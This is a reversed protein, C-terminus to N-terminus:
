CFYQNQPPQTPQAKSLKNKRDTKTFKNLIAKLMVYIVLRFIFGSNVETAGGLLQRQGPGGSKWRGWSERPVRWWRRPPPRGAAPSHSVQQPHAAQGKM